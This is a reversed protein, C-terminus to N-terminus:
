PCSKEMTYSDIVEGTITVFQLSLQGAVTEVLMAGHDLNYRVESGAAVTEAFAYRPAGGLGNTIYPFGDLMVREYIHNHGSFTADAGWEAFPWRMWPAPGRHGSTYATHHFFVLDWCTTSAALEQQLWAAQQSDAEIGDPEGPMSNLAYITVPERVVRYYRENGPLTFYDFHPTAGPVDWDHNGLIPFFRNTEAGAGYEGQYPHIFEHYYQGVNPDITAAEGNPFNNDGTTVIFEPQWGKVLNAVAESIIGPTGLDGIIAFRAAAPEPTATPAPTATPTLTPPPTPTVTPTSTAVATTPVTTPDPSVATQAAFRCGALVLIGCIIGILAVSRHTMM